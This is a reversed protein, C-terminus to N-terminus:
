IRLAPSFGNWGGGFVWREQGRGGWLSWLAEPLSAAMRIGAWSGQAYAPTQESIVAGHDGIGSSGRNHESMQFYVM